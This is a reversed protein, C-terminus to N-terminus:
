SRAASREEKFQYGAVFALAVYWGTRFMPSIIVQEEYIRLEVWAYVIPPLVVCLAAIVIATVLQPLRPATGAIIRVCRAFIGGIMILVLLGGM